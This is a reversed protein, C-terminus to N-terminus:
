RWRGDVFFWGRRDQEWHGREWVARRYPPREWHGRIWIFGNGDWRHYGDIWIFEPGPAVERVEVIPAPPGFRVYLRGREACAPAVTVLAGLLAVGTMAKLSNRWNM